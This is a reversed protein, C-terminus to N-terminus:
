KGDTEGGEGCLELISARNAELWEAPKVNVLIAATLQDYVQQQALEAMPWKRTTSRARSLLQGLVERRDAETWAPTINM